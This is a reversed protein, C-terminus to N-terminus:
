VMKLQDWDYDICKASIIPIFFLFPISGIPSMNKETM